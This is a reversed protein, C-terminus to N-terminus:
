SIYGLGKLRKMVDADQDDSDLTNVIQELLHVVFEDTSSYGQKDAYEKVQEFLDKDLKIKPM